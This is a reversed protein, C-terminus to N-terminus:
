TLDERTAVVPLLTLFGSVDLVQKVIDHPGILRVGGARTTVTRMTALLVRLGASSMYPVGALDFALWATGKELEVRCADELAVSTFADIRGTVTLVVWKGVTETSFEM